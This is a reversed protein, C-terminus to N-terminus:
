YCKTPGSILCFDDFFTTTTLPILHDSKLASYHDNSIIFLLLLLTLNYKINYVNLCNKIKDVIQRCKFLYFSRKIKWFACCSSM